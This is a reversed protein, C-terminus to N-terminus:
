RTCPKDSPNKRWRESLRRLRPIQWSGVGYKWIWRLPRVLYYLGRLARPLGILRMDTTAPITTALIYRLRDRPSTLTWWEFLFHNIHYRWANQTPHPWRQMVKDALRARDRLLAIQAQALPPLRVGLANQVLFLAFTLLKISKYRRAQQLLRDWDLTPHGAILAAVGSIMYLRDWADKTGHLCLLLLHDEIRFIDIPRGMLSMSVREPFPPPAFFSRKPMIAWHLDITMAGKRFGRQGDALLPIMWDQIEASATWGEEQLVRSTRMVEPAAVLIDLDAFERLGLNGYALMALTPGKFPIAEIGSQRLREILHVLAQTLLLNRALNAHAHQRLGEMVAPPVRDPAAHRLHHFLLPRMKHIAALQLLRPWDMGDACLADVTATQGTGAPTACALLM